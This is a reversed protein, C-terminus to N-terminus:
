TIAVNFMGWVLPVVWYKTRLSAKMMQGWKCCICVSCLCLNISLYLYWYFFSMFFVHLQVSELVSLLDTLCKSGCASLVGQAEGHDLHQVWPCSGVRRGCERHAVTLGHLCHNSAHHEVSRSTGGYCPSSYVWASSEGGSFSWMVSFLIQNTLICEM